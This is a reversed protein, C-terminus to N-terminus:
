TDVYTQINALECPWSGFHLPQVAACANPHNACIGYIYLVFGVICRSAGHGKVESIRNNVGKESLINVNFQESKSM